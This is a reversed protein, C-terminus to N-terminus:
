EILMGITPSGSSAICRHLDGENSIVLFSSKGDNYIIRFAKQRLIKFRETVRERLYPIGSSIPLQFKVTEGLYSAKIMKALPGTALNKENLLNRIQIFEEVYNEKPEATVLQIVGLLIQHAGENLSVPVVLQGLFQNKAQFTRQDSVGIRAALGALWEQDVKNGPRIPYDYRLNRKRYRELAKHDKTSGKKSSWFPQDKVTLTWWGHGLATYKWFLVVGSQEGFDFRKIANEIYSQM